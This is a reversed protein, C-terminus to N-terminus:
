VKWPSTSRIMHLYRSIAKTNVTISGPYPYNKLGPTAEHGFAEMVPCLDTFECWIEMHTEYEM